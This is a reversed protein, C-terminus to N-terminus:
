ESISNPIKYVRSTRCDFVLQAQYLDIVNQVGVPNYIDEPFQVIYYCLDGFNEEQFIDAMQRECEITVCSNRYWGDGYLKADEPLADIFNELQIIDQRAHYYEKLTSIDKPIFCISCILIGIILISYRLFINKLKDYIPYILIMVVCIALVHAIIIRRPWQKVTPMYAAFWIFYVFDLSICYRIWYDSRKKERKIFLWLLPLIFLVIAVCPWVAFNEGYGNIGELLKTFRTTNGVSAQLTKTTPIDVSSITNFGTQRFIAGLQEKWWSIYQNKGLSAFKYIEFISVPILFGIGGEVISKLKIRNEKNNKNYDVLIILFIPFTILFVTKTLYGMGAMFGALIWYRDKKTKVAMELMEWTAMIWFAVCLEGFGAYAVELTNTWILVISLVFLSYIENTYKSVRKWLLVCLGFLYGMTVMQMHTTKAGFCYDLIASPIIVPAGTQITKEFLVGGRYVTKYGYGQSLSYAVEDNMYGDFNLTTLYVIVGFACFVVVFYIYVLIRSWNDIHMKKMLLRCGKEM